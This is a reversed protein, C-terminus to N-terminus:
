KSVLLAIGWVVLATNVVCNAVSITDHPEKQILRGVVVLLALATQTILYYTM